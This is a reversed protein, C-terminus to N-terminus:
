THPGKIECTGHICAMCSGVVEQIGGHGDHVIALTLSNPPSEELGLARRRENITIPRRKRKVEFTLGLLNLKM